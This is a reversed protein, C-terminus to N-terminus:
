SSCLADLTSNASLIKLKMEQKTNGKSNGRQSSKQTTRLRGRSRNEQPSQGLIDMEVFERRKRLMHGVCKWKREVQV